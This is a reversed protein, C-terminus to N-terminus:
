DPSGAPGGGVRTCRLCLSRVAPLIRILWGPMGIFKSVEAVGEEYRTRFAEDTWYDQKAYHALKRDARERIPEGNPLKAAFARERRFCVAEVRSRLEERYGIGCRWLRAHTAEHVISAAIREPSTAEDLVYRPDLVCAWISSDFEALGGPILQVWIRELDRILREYRLRDYTKILQLAEEVRPLSPGPESDFIGIWLGDVRRGVSWRLMVRTVLRPRKNESKRRRDTMRYLWFITVSKRAPFPPPRVRLLRSLKRSLRSCVTYRRCPTLQASPDIKRDKILRKLVTRLRRFYNNSWEFAV